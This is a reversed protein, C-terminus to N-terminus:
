TRCLHDNHHADVELKVEAKKEDTWTDDWERSFNQCILCKYLIITKKEVIKHGESTLEYVDNPFRYKLM